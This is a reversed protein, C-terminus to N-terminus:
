DDAAPIRNGRRSRRRARHDARRGRHGDALPRDTTDGIIENTADFMDACAMLRMAPNGDSDDSKKASLAGFLASLMKLAAPKLPSLRHLFTASLSYPARSAPVTENSLRLLSTTGLTLWVRIGRPM